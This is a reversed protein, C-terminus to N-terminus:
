EEGEVAAEVRLLVFGVALGVLTISFCTIAVEAIEPGREIERVGDGGRRTLRCGDARRLETIGCRLM